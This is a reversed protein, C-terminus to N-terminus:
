SRARGHAVLETTAEQVVELDLQAGLRMFTEHAHQLQRAAEDLREEALAVRGMQAALRGEALDEGSGLAERAQDTARRAAPADGADLEVQALNCLGTVALVRHGAETAM